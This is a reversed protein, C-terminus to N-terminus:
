VDIMLCKENIQTENNFYDYIVNFCTLIIKIIFFLTIFIFISLIFKNFM